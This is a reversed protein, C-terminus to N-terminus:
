LLSLALEGTAVVDTGQFFPPAAKMWSWPVIPLAFLAAVMASTAVSVLPMSFPLM